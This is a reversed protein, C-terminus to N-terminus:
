SGAPGGDNAVERRDLNVSVVRRRSLASEMLGAVIGPLWALPQPPAHVYSAGLDWATGIVAPDDTETVVLIATGPFVWVARDLLIM